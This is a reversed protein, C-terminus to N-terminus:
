ILRRKDCICRDTTYGVAVTVTISNSEYRERRRVNWAYIIPQKRVCTKEVNIVHEDM